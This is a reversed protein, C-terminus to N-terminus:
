SGNTRVYLPLRHSVAAHPDTKRSTYVVRVLLEACSRQCSGLEAVYMVYIWM